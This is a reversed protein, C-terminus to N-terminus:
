RWAQGARNRTQLTRRRWVNGGAIEHRPALGLWAWFAKEHPWTGLDLGIEAVMTHGTSAHLGPIAVWDV